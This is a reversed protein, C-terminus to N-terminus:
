TRKKHKLGQLGMCTHLDRVDWFDSQQDYIWIFGMIDGDIEMNEPQHAAAEVRPPHGVLISKKQLQQLSGTGTPLGQRKM